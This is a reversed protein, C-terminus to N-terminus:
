ENFLPKVNSCQGFFVDKWENLSEKKLTYRGCAFFLPVRKPDLFAIAMCTNFKAGNGMKARSLTFDPRRCHQIFTEDFYQWIKKAM